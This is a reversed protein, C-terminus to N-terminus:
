AEPGDATGGNGDAAPAEAADAAEEANKGNAESYFDEVEESPQPPPLEMKVPPIYETNGKFAKVSIARVMFAAAAAVFAMLTIILGGTDYKWIILALQGAAWAATLLFQLEFVTFTLNTELGRKPVVKESVSRAIKGKRFNFVGAWVMVAILLFMVILYLSQLWPIAIVYNMCDQRIFLSVVLLIHAIMLWLSRRKQLALLQDDPLRSVYSGSPPVIKKKKTVNRM